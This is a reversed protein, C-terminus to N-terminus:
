NDRLSGSGVFYKEYGGSSLTFEIRVAGQTGSRGLNTFVVNKANVRASHITTTSGGRQSMKIANDTFQFVTPNIGAEVMELNLFQSTSSAAPLAIGRANRLNQTISAMIDSGAYEVEAIVEQKARSNFMVEVFTLIGGFVISTIAVYLLVEILTFGSHFKM